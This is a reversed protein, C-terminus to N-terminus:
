TVRKVNVNYDICGKKDAKYHRSLEDYNKYFGVHAASGWKKIEDRNATFKFRGAVYENCMMGKAYYTCYYTNEGKIWKILKNIM